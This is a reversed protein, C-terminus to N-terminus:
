EVGGLIGLWELVKQTGDLWKTNSQIFLALVSFLQPTVFRLFISRNVPWQPYNQLVAYANQLKELNTWAEDIAKVEQKELATELERKLKTATAGLKRAFETKQKKMDDHIGLLPYFFAWTGGILGGVTAITLLTGTIRQQPLRVIAKLVPNSLETQSLWRAAIGWYGAVLTGIIVMMATQLCIDGLPKLGGCKDPHSPIVQLDFHNTLQRLYIATWLVMWGADLIIPMWLSPGVVWKCINFLASTIATFSTPSPGLSRLVFSLLIVDVVITVGLIVALRWPSGLMAQYRSLSQASLSLADATRTESRKILLMQDEWLGRLAVPVKQVYRMYLWSIIALTLVLSTYIVDNYASHANLLHFPIHLERWVTLYEHVDWILGIIFLLVMPSIMLFPLRWGQFVTEELSTPTLTLRELLKRTEEDELVPTTESASDPTPTVPEIGALKEILKTLHKLISLILSAWIPQEGASARHDNEGSEPAPTHNM